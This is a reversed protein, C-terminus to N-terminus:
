GELVAFVENMLDSIKDTKTRILEKLEVTSKLAAQNQKTPNKVSVDFNHIDTAKVIWANESSAKSPLLALFEEFHDYQIPKNKTLKCPLNLEYYGM